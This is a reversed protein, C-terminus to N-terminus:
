RKENGCKPCIREPQRSQIYAFSGITIFSLYSAVAVQRVYERSVGVARAVEAGIWEPHESHLQVIREAKSLPMM